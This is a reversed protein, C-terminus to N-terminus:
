KGNKRQELRLQERLKTNEGQVVNLEDLLAAKQGQDSGRMAEIEEIAEKLQRRVETLQAEMKIRMSEPATAVEEALSLARASLTKNADALSQLTVGQDQLELEIQRKERQARQVAGQLQNIEDLLNTQKAVLTLNREELSKVQKSYTELGQSSEQALKQAREANNKLLDHAQAFRLLREIIARDDAVLAQVRQAFGELTFDGPHSLTNFIPSPSNARPDYLAKLARVDLDSLSPGSMGDGLRGGAKGTITHLPSTPSGARGYGAKAARTERSPLLCWLSRLTSMMRDMDESSRGGSGNSSGPDSGMSNSKSPVPRGNQVDRLREELIRTEQRSEELERSLTEPRKLAAALDAELRRRAADWEDKEAKRKQVGEKISDLHSSLANTLVLVSMERRQSPSLQIDHTRILAQLRESAMDLEVDASRSSAAASERDRLEDIEGQLRAAEDMREDEWAIREAERERRERELTEKVQKLEREVQEGVGKQSREAQELDREMQTRVEEWQRREDELTRVQKSMSSMRHLDSRLGSITTDAEALKAAEQKRETRLEEAERALEEKEDVANRLQEQLTAIQEELASAQAVSRFPKPMNPLKAEAHGAFLHAGEFRARNSLSMNTVASTPSDASFMGHNMSTGQNAPTTRGSSFTDNAPAPKVLSELRSLSYSLVATRHELLRKHIINSQEALKSLASQAADVKANAADLAASNPEGNSPHLKNLSLAADRLKTELTLKKAAATQRSSLAKLEKKLQEVQEAGLIECDRSDVVAESALLEIILEDKTTGAPVSGPVPPSSSTYAISRSLSSSAKSHGSPGGGTKRKAGRSASRTTSSM